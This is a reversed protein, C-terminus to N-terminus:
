AIGVELNKRAVRSVMIGLGEVVALGVVHSCACCLLQM